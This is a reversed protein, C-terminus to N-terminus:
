IGAPVARAGGISTRIINEAAAVVDLEHPTAAQDATITVVDAPDTVQVTLSDIIGSTNATAGSIFADRGDDTNNDVEGYQTRINSGIKDEDCDSLKSGVYYDEQVASEPAPTPEPSPAATKAVDGKQALALCAAGEKQVFALARQFAQQEASPTPATATAAAPADPTASPTAAGETSSCASLVLGGTLVIVGAGVARRGRESKRRESMHSRRKLITISRKHGGQMM